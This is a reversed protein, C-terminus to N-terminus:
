ESATGANLGELVKTMKADFTKSDYAGTTLKSYEVGLKALVAAILDYMLNNYTLVLQAAEQPTTAGIPEVDVEWVCKSRPAFSTTAEVRTISNMLMLINAPIDDHKAEAM